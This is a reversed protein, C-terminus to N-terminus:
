YFKLENDKPWKPTPIGLVKRKLVSIVHSPKSNILNTQLKKKLVVLNFVILMYHFFVTGFPEPFAIPLCDDPPSM